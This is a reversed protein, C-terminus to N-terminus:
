RKKYNKIQKWTKTLKTLKSKILTEFQDTKKTEKYRIAGAVFDALVIVPNQQSDLHEIFVPQSLKKRIIQNCKEKQAPNSFHRDIIIHNAKHHQILISKLLTSILLAYNQPTDAISRKEKNITLTYIKIPLQNIKQLLKIKTKDGVLSFKLESLKREKKRPGKVPLSRKTKLVLQDIGILSPVLIASIVVTPDSKDHLRGSEDILIYKYINKLKKM